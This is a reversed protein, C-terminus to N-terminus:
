CEEVRGVSNEKGNYILENTVILRGDNILGAGYRYVSLRATAVNGKGYRASSMLKDSVSLRKVGLLIHRDM